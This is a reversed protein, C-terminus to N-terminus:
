LLLTENLDKEQDDSSTNEGTEEVEENWHGIFEVLPELLIDFEENVRQQALEILTRIDQATADGYNVIVNAYKKDFGANGLRHGKLDVAEILRAATDNLPDYFIAGVNLQEPHEFKAKALYAANQEIILDPDDRDMKFWANLIIPRKDIPTGLINSDRSDLGLQKASVTKIKDQDSIIYEISLLRKRIGHDWLQANRIVAGGVSGSLGITWELGSAGDKALETVLSQMRAGSEAVLAFGHQYEILEYNKAKNLIVIGEIGADSVLIRSGAGIIRYPLKTRRAVYVAKVLMEISDACLVWDAPGGVRFATHNAMAEQQLVNQAGMEARLLIRVLTNKKITRTTAWPRRM